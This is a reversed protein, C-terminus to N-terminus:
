LFYDLNWLSHLFCICLFGFDVLEPDGLCFELNCEKNDTLELPLRFGRESGDTLVKEINNWQQSLFLGCHDLFPLINKYGLSLKNQILFFLHRSLGWNLKHFLKFAANISNKRIISVKNLVGQEMKTVKGLLYGKSTTNEDVLVVWGLSNLFKSESLLGSDIYDDGFIVDDVKHFLLVLTIPLSQLM